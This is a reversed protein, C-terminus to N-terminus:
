LFRTVWLCPRPEGSLIRPPVRGFREGLGARYKGHRLMQLLWWPSGLALCVALGMSYLFHMLAM